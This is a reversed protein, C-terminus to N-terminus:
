KLHTLGILKNTPVFGFFSKNVTRILAWGSEVSCVYVKADGKLAYSEASSSARQFVKTGAKLGAGYEAKGRGNLLGSADVYVATKGKVIIKAVGNKVSDVLVATAAPVTGVAEKKEDYAKLSKTTVDGSYALASACLSLILAAALIAAFLKKM